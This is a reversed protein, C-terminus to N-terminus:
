PSLDHYIELVCAFKGSFYITLYMVRYVTDHLCIYIKVVRKSMSCILISFFYFCRRCFRFFTSYFVCSRKRKCSPTLFAFWFPLFFWFHVSFLTTLRLFFIYLRNTRYSQKYNNVFFPLVKDIACNTLERRLKVVLHLLCRIKLIKPRNFWLNIPLVTM